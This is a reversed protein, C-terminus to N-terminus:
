SPVAPPILLVTGSAVTANEHMPQHVFEHQTQAGHQHMSDLLAALAVLQQPSFGSVVVTNKMTTSFSPMHSSGGFSLLKWILGQCLEVFVGIAVSLEEYVLMVRLRAPVRLQTTGMQHANCRLEGTTFTELELEPLPQRDRCRSARLWKSPFLMPAGSRPPIGLSKGLTPELTTGSETGIKTQCLSIPQRLNSRRHSRASLQRHHHFLKKVHGGSRGDRGHGTTVLSTSSAVPSWLLTHHGKAVKPPTDRLPCASPRAVVGMISYRRAAVIGAINMPPKPSSKACKAVSTRSDRACRCLSPRRPCVRWTMTLEAQTILM